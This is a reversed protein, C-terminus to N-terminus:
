SALGFFAKVKKDRSALAYAIVAAGSFSILIGLWDVAKKEYTIRVNPQTPYVLMFSPSVLYIKDAGYVTWSPYYSVSIIHPAGVCDTTFSIEEESLNEVINCNRNVPVEPIADISKDTIVNSFHTLDSSDYETVFALPTDIFTMQRFWNYSVNKWEKWKDVKFLVPENKPVTVYHDPNSLVEWVEFPEAAFDFKWDTRNKLAQKLKDSRVLIHKVNFMNLHRTGNDLNFGTCPFANWFPCSQQESIEAQIYFSFPSSIISQMYLGELINRGAFLPISEFARVTGAANHQDNHEFQARPDGVSGNMFDNVAKYQPWVVKKEFGEYNWKIWGPSYGHYNWSKLESVIFDLTIGGQPLPANWENVWFLTMFVGILPLLFSAKLGRTVESLAYAAMFMSVLYVFPLFRIDVVGIY